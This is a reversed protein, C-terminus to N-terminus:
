EKLKCSVRYKRIMREPKYSMKSDRLSELGLDQELNFCCYRSPMIEAFSNFMYQYIGKFIKRGKVFHLVFNEDNLEEGIVFGAPENDAYFIGGCLNLTDYLKIAEMCEQYDTNMASDRTTEIWLSLIKIADPLRDETLPFAGHIYSDKFRNLLNKQGHLHQGSYKQMKIISHIYDSDDANLSLNYIESDFMGIWEEPVPFLVGFEVMMRKIYDRDAKTLDFVPMIYEIGDYTRGLNFIEEDYLIRYDHKGRFLYLSAFSYESINLSLDRLKKGILNRHGLTIKEILM